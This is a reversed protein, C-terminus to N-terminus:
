CGSRCGRRGRRDGSEPTAIIFDSKQRAKARLLPATRPSTMRAAITTSATKAGTRNGPSGHSMAVMGKWGGSDSSARNPDSMSPRSMADPMAWPARTDSSIPRVEVAAARAMPTVSPASAPKWPPLTSSAMMRKVSSNWVMGLKTSATTSTAMKVGLRVVMTAAMAMTLQGGSARKARASNRLRRVRSNTCAAMVVPCLLVVMMRRWIRGLLRDGIM